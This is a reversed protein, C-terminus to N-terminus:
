PDYSPAKKLLDIAKDYNYQSALLEAEALTDKSATETNKTVAELAKEGSVTQEKQKDSSVTKEKSAKESRGKLAGVGSYSSHRFSINFRRLFCWSFSRLFRRAMMVAAIITATPADPTGM